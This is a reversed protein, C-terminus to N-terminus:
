RASRRLAHGALFVGAGIGLLLLERRVNHGLVGVFLAAGTIVLGLFQVVRALVHM